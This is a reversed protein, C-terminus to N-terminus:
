TDSTENFENTEPITILQLGEFDSVKRKTEGFQIISYGQENSANHLLTATGKKVRKCILEWLKQRVLASITGVFVGPHLEIMWRTIEGRLSTSVKELIFVVM